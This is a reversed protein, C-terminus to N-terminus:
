YKSPLIITAIKLYFLYEDKHKFRFRIQSKNSSVKEYFLAVFHEIDQVGQETQCHKKINNFCLSVLAIEQHYHLPTPAILPHTSKPKREKGILKNKLKPDVPNTLTIARQHIFLADDFTFNAHSTDILGIGRELDNLLKDVHYYPYDFLRKVATKQQPNTPQSNQVMEVNDLAPLPNNFDAKLTHAKLKKILLPRIKGLHVVGRIFDAAGKAYANFRGSKQGTFKSVLTIPLTIDSRQMVGAWSAHTMHSHYFCRLLRALIDKHPQLNTKTM